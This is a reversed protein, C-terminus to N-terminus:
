EEEGYSRAFEEDFRNSVFDNKIQDLLLNFEGLNEAGNWFTRMSADKRTYGLFLSTIKKDRVEQLLESLNKLMGNNDRLQVFQEIKAM